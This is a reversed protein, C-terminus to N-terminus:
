YFLINVFLIKDSSKFFDVIGYVDADSFNFLNFINFLILAVVERGPTSERNCYRVDSM